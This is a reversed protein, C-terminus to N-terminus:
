SLDGKQLSMYVQQMTQKEISFSEVPIDHQVLTKLMGSKELNDGLTVIATKDQSQVISIGLAEIASQYDAIPKSLMLRYLQQAQDQEGLACQKVIKGNNIMLMHTSYDELESLIHSSVIITMGEGKLQILLQSLEYRAQPDLGSAPEDLILVKPKVIITQAIAVRQRQGRSLTGVAKKYLKDIDLKKAVNMCLQECAQSSVLRSMAIYKLSQEVTLEDYLGFFDSLYSCAKHIARPQEEVEIGDVYVDGLTWDDLAALCRLLTTKGAGNPGVLATITNAEIEFSVDDLARKNPYDYTLNKVSIM